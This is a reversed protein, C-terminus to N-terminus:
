CDGVPVVGLEPVGLYYTVDGPDQLTRDARERVVAFGVGLVMGFLLGFTARQTCM